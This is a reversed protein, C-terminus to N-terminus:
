RGVDGVNKGRIKGRRAAMGHAIWREMGAAGSKTENRDARETQSADAARM